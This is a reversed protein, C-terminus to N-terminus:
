RRRARRLGAVQRAGSPPATVAGPPTAHGRALEFFLRLRAGARARLDSQAARDGSYMTMTGAGPPRGFPHIHSWEPLPPGNEERTMIAASLYYGFFMEGKPGPLNSNRRGWAAEPDACETSGHRPPRSWTEVDTWDAALASIAAL